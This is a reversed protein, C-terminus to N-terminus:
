ALVGIDVTGLKSLADSLKRIPVAKALFYTLQNDKRVYEVKTDKNEIKERIYHCDVVEHNKCEHYVINTAIYWASTSDSYLIMPDKNYIEVCLLIRLWLLECAGLTVARYEVEFSSRAWVTQKKSKWSVLNGVTGQKKGEIQRQDHGIHM